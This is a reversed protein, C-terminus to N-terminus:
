SQVGDGDVMTVDAKHPHEHVLVVYHPMIASLLAELYVGALSQRGGGRRDSGDLISGDLKHGPPLWLLKPQYVEDVVDPPLNVDIGALFGRGGIVGKFFGCPYEDFFENLGIHALAGVVSADAISM